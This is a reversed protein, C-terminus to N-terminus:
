FHGRQSRDWRLARSKRRLLVRLGATQTPKTRSWSKLEKDGNGIHPRMETRQASNNKRVQVTM